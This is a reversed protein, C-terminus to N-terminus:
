QLDPPSCRYSSAQAPNGGVFRPYEPYSCLPRSGARGTVTISKGPAIGKEVWDRLMTFRDMQNPIDRVPIPKGNGDLMFNSGSLGHGTQPLVYFRAFTDLSSRGTKDLVAQYYDLQAGPSAVTDNTGITVILKGGRQHFASLDPNTSDLWESLQRRRAVDTVGEVYDLPNANVNRLLFGTLGLSGISSYRPAGPAAGEQARYRLDTFLSGLGRPMGASPGGALPPAAVGPSAAPARPAAAPTAGRPPPGMGGAVDTTPAWMGFKLNGNALPAGYRYTSFVFKLTEIQGDTFCANASDDEPHADINNPCRKASWPNKNHNHPGHINFLARCAVYNNIVGDALGDLKDCQRIFEAEIAKAKTAPVWNIARKEQARIWVPAYMLGTFNVIPVAAAVGDYDAPYRQAVTLGERGGQSTGVYYNYRPKLGYAHQIIVMAADHTKKMQEFGLNKIAEDNLAWESEASSHGSDSGYTAVGQSLYSPAGREAGATLQPVTGNMGGGGMQVGVGAWSAPLAVGFQIPRATASKDIPALAGRVICYAPEGGAAETWKPPELSVASVPEGIQAPDIHTGLGADTCREQTLIASQPPQAHALGVPVSALLLLLHRIKM